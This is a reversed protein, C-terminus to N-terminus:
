KTKNLIYHHIIILGRGGRIFTYVKWFDSHLRTDNLNVCLLIFLASANNNDEVSMFSCILENGEFSLVCEM